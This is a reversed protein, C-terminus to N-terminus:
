SLRHPRPSPAEARGSLNGDAIYYYPPGKLIALRASSDFKRIQIQPHEQNAHGDPTDCTM